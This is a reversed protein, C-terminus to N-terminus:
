VNEKIYEGVYVNYGSLGGRRRAQLNYDAKEDATLVNKWNSVATTMANRAAQGEANNISSPVFYKYKDQYLKGLISNGVGNGRRVRFIVETGFRKRVLFGLPIRAISRDFHVFALDEDTFPGGNFWFNGFKPMTDKIGAHVSPM